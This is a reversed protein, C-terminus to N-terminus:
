KESHFSKLDEEAWSFLISSEKNRNDCPLFLIYSVLSENTALDRFIQTVLRDVQALAQGNDSKRM